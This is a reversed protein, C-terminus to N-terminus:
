VKGELRDLDRQLAKRGELLNVCAGLMTADAFKSSTFEIREDLDDIFVNILLPGLM